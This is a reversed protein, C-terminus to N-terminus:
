SPGDLESRRYERYNELDANAESTDRRMMQEHAIRQKFLSEIKSPVYIDRYWKEFSAPSENDTM